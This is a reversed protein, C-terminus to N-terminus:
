KKPPEATKTEEDIFKLFDDEQPPTIQQNGYQDIPLPSLKNTDGFEGPEDEGKEDTVLEFDISETDDFRDSLEKVSLRKASKISGSDWPKYKHDGNVEVKQAYVIRSKNPIPHHDKNQSLDFYNRPLTGSKVKQLFDKHEADTVFTAHTLRQPEEYPNHGIKYLAQQELNGNNFIRVLRWYTDSGEPKHPATVIGIVERYRKDVM